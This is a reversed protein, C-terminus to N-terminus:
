KKLELDHACSSEDKVVGDSVHLDRLTYGLTIHPYFYQPKFFEKDGGKSIFLKQIEERIKLLDPSRVVVYFAYETKTEVDLSGKGVCVVEFKSNQIKQKLALEDIEAMTIKTKLIETFEVPTIVTIHAEGRNTLPMRKEILLQKFLDAMPEFNVEMTLYSDFAGSGQHSQFPLKSNKFVAESIYFKASAAHALGSLLIVSFILAKL